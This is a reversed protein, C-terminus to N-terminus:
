ENHEFVHLKSNSNIPKDISYNDTTYGLQIDQVDINHTKRM